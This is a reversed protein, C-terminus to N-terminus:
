PTLPSQYKYGLDTDYLKISSIMQAFATGQKLAVTENVMVVVILRGMVMASADRNNPDAIVIKEVYRRSIFPPAFGLTIYQADEIIARCIGVLRGLKLMALRDAKKDADTGTTPSNVYVDINFRYTGPASIATQGNYDGTALTVNVASTDEDHFPVIRELYVDADAEYNGEEMLQNELEEGLIEFLRFRVLEYAQEPIAINIKAAM